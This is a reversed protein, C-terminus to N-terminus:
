RIRDRELAGDMVLFHECISDKGDWEEEAPVGQEDCFVTQRIRRAADMNAANDAHFALVAFAM